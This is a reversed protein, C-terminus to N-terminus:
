ENIFSVLDVRQNSYKEVYINIVKIKFYSQRMRFVDHKGRGDKLLQIESLKSLINNHYSLIELNHTQHNHQTCTQVTIFYWRTYRLCANKM